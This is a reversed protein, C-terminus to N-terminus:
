RRLIWTWVIGNSDHASFIYCRLHLLLLAYHCNGRGNFAGNNYDSVRCTKASFIKCTCIEAIQRVTHVTLNCAVFIAQSLNCAVLQKTHIWSFINSKLNKIDLDSINCVHGATKYLSSLFILLFSIISLLFSLRSFVGAWGMDIAVVDLGLIFCATWFPCRESM